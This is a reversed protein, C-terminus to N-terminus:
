FRYTLGALIHYDAEAQNLGAKIGIDLDLNEYLSYILGGLIFAPHTSSGRDPNAEGGVNGVLKLKRTATYEAALSYHWVDRLERRNKTFSVDLHLIIPDIERTSIFALGYSTKGDGLGKEDDGIPLTIGPKLALSLRERDYFRWKIEIGIDSIGHETIMHGEHDRFRLLHYPISLVLDVNDRLGATFISAPETAIDHNDRAHEGILELQFKGAGQTGTDDTILPHAAFVDGSMLLVIAMSLFAYNNFISSELITFVRKFM